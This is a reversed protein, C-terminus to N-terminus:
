RDPEPLLCERPYEATWIESDKIFQIYINRESSVDPFLAGEDYSMIYDICTEDYLEFNWYLRNDHSTCFTKLYFDLRQENGYIDTTDIYLPLLRFWEYVWFWSKYEKSFDFGFDTVILNTGKHTSISDEIFSFNEDIVINAAEVDSILNYYISTNYEDPWVPANNNSELRLERTIPDIILFYSEYPLGDPFVCVQYWNHYTGEQYTAIIEHYKATHADNLIGMLGYIDTAKKQWGEVYTRVMIEAEELTLNVEAYSNMTFATLLLFLLIIRRINM